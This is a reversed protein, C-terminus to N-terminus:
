DTANTEFNLQKNRRPVSQKKRGMASAIEEQWEEQSITKAGNKKAKEVTSSDPKPGCVLYYLTQTVKDSVKFGIGEAEKILGETKKKSTFGTFFVNLPEIKLLDATFIKTLNTRKCTVQHEGAMDILLSENRLGLWMAYYNLHGYKNPSKPKGAIGGEFPLEPLEGRKAAVALDPNILATSRGVEWCNILGCDKGNWREDWELSQRIPVSIAREILNKSPM